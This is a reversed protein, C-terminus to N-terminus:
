GDQNLSGSFREILYIMLKIRNKNPDNVNELWFFGHSSSVRLPNPILKFLFDFLDLFISFFFSSVLSMQRLAWKDVVTVAAIAGCCCSYCWQLPQQVYTNKKWEDDTQYGIDLAQVRSNWHPLIANASKNTLSM